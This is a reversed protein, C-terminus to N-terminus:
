EPYRRITHMGSWGGFGAMVRELKEGPKPAKWRLDGTPAKAYPIGLWKHCGNQESAGIVMGTNTQRNTSSEMSFDVSTVSTYNNEM